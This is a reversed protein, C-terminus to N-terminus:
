VPDRLRKKPLIPKLYIMGRKYANYLTHEQGLRDVVVVESGEAWADELRSFRKDISSGDPRKVLFHVLSLPGGQNRFRQAVGM